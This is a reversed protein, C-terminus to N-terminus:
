GPLPTPAPGHAADLRAKLATAPEQPPAIPVPAASRLLAVLAGFGRQEDLSRLNRLVFSLVAAEETVPDLPSALPTPQSPAEPEALLHWVRVDLLRAAHHLFGVTMRNVGTEYKSLQQVSIGLAGALYRRSVGKRERVARLIAGTQVDYPCPGRRRYTAGQSSGIHDSGEDRSSVINM